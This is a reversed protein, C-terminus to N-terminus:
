AAEKERNVREEEERFIARLKKESVVDRVRKEDPVMERLRRCLRVRFLHGEAIANEAQAAAELDAGLLSGLAKGAVCYSYYSECARAVSASRGVVVKAPGGYRGTIRRIQTNSKHRAEHVLNRVAYSLLMEVLGDFDPLSRIDKEAKEAARDIDDQYKAAAEEAIRLVSDPFQM